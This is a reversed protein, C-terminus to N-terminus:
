ERFQTKAHEGFLQKLELRQYKGTVTVPVDNGFVVVKPCKSFPM